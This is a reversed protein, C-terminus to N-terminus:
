DGKERAAEKRERLADVADQAYTEVEFWDGPLYINPLGTRLPDFGLLYGGRDPTAKTVSIPTHLDDDFAILWGDGDVATLIKYGDRRDLKEMFTRKEDDNSFRVALNTSGPWQNEPALQLDDATFDECFFRVSGIRGKEFASHIATDIARLRSQVLYQVAEGDVEEYFNLYGFFTLAVGWSDSKAQLTRANLRKM